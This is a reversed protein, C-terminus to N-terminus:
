DVPVHNRYPGKLAVYEGPSMGAFARFDHNFHPQDYYGCDLAITTWNIAKGAEIRQLTQQFRQVRAFVKPAMGVSRRFLDILRAQSVGCRFAIEAITSTTPITQLESVAYQVVPNPASGRPLKALLSEQLIRFRAHISPAELVQIRLDGAEAGWIDELSLDRNYLESPCVRLFPLAGGHHFQVGVSTQVEAPDIIWAKSTAGTILSAGLTHSLRGSDGHYVHVRAASLSIILSMNGYPLVRERPKACPSDDWYWLRDIFCSLPPDPRQSVYQM